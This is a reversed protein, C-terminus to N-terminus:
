HATKSPRSLLEHEIGLQVSCNFQPFRLLNAYQNDDPNPEDKILNQTTL